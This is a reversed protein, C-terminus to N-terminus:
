NRRQNPDNLEDNVMELDLDGFAQAKERAERVYVEEILALYEAAPPGIERLAEIAKARVAAHEDGVAVQHLARISNQTALRQLGEIVVARTARSPDRLFDILSPEVSPRDMGALASAVAYRLDPDERRKLLTRVVDDNPFQALIEAALARIWWDAGGLFINTVQPVVVPDNMKSSLMMAYVRVDEDDDDLLEVVADKIEDAVTLLSETARSRLWAALRRSYTLFGRLVSVKDPMEALLKVALNRILPNEDALIPFLHQEISIGRTNALRSLAQIMRTQIIRPEFPLQAFFPEVLDPTPNECLAFIAERRVTEDDARTLNQLIMGVTPDQAHRALVNVAQVRLQTDPVKVTQKILGLHDRWRPDVRVVDLVTSRYVGNRTHFLRSLTRLLMARDLQILQKALESRVRRDDTSAMAQLTMEICDRSAARAIFEFGATRVEGLPSTLMWQLNRPTADPDFVVRSVLEKVDVPSLGAPSQLRKVLEQFSNGRGFIAM